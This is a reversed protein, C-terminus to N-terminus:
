LSKKEHSYLGPALFKWLQNLIFPFTAFLATFFSLKLYTLFAEHLGTYIMRRHGNDGLSHVLPQMLFAYIEQAFYYAGMFALTFFALCVLLRKRLELLHSLLPAKALEDPTPANM